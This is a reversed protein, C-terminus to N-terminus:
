FIVQFYLEAVTLRIHQDACLYASNADLWETKDLLMIECILQFEHYDRCKTASSSYALKRFRYFNRNIGFKM